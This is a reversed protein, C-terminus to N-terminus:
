LLRKRCGTKQVWELPPRRYWWRHNRSSNSAHVPRSIHGVPNAGAEGGVQLLDGFNVVFADAVLPVPQWEGGYHVQACPVACSFGTLASVRGLPNEVHGVRHDTLSGRGVQLGEDGPLLLTICGYDTHADTNGDLPPYKLAQFPPHAPKACLHRVHQFPPPPQACARQEM